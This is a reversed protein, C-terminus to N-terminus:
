KQMSLNKQIQLVKIEEIKRKNLLDKMKAEKKLQDIVLDKKTNAKKMTLLEDARLKRLKNYKELEEKWKKHASIKQTKIKQIESELNKIKLSQSDVQKKMTIQKM